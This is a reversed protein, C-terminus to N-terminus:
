AVKELIAVANLGGFGFSNVEVVRPAAVAATGRVLRFGAVQDIPNELGLIPPVLGTRMSEIAMVLSHLGAAGGTHGLMSKIATMLPSTASGAFVDRVAIAEAEDNLETGTGHLMLLDIDAPSVGARHQADRIARGISERDPASPHYADCNMGVGRIRALTRGAGPGDAERRLVVAAAGEGQVMGRRDRDFPRLSEPAEPYCRDLLGYTSEAVSEVGAVVITDETGLDLRDVALGLAYLSAACANAVTYSATVGFRSRLAPGFHLNRVDFDKGDRWSLEVSRLERLTTGVLVPIGSLDEGLGAQRAAAAIADLLWGTARLPVDVGVGPRDDIEYAYRSRFRTRDFGRLEALGSRGACLAGFLEDVDEGTSAVAGTGTVLWGTM